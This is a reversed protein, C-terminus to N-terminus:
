SGEEAAAFRVLPQEAQVQQGEVVLLAEVLGGQPAAVTHEMKMAELVLLPDGREVRQGAEVFLKRIKGPMPSVCRGPETTSAADPLRPLERLRVQGLPSHVFVEAGARAVRLLRQVGDVELRITRESTQLVRVDLEAGGDVRAIHRGASRTRTQVTHDAGRGHFTTAQDRFRSNRWGAPVDPLVTRGAQRSAQDFFTAALCALPLAEPHGPLARDEPPLHEAIFHTSLNGALFEPHELVRILLDRNTALGQVALGELARVLRRIAQLRDPAHAVVKALLPDYDIGVQSGTEVGADVRLGEMDPVFWDHVTGTCPLFDNGPDEAYLRCEIAHGNQRLDAQDFRLPLGM